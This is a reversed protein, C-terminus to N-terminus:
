GVGESYFVRSLVSIVRAYRKLQGKLKSKEPWGNQCYEKIKHCTPDKEQKQLIEQLKEESAPLHEIIANVFANVEKESEMELTGTSEQHEQFLIQQVSNQEQFM